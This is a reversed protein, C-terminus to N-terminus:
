IEWIKLHGLPLQIKRESNFYDLLIKSSNNEIFLKQFAKITLTKCFLLINETVLHGFVIAAWSILTLKLLTTKIM